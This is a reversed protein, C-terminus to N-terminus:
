GRRPYLTLVADDDYRGVDHLDFRPAQELNTAWPGVLLPRGQPGLLVPAVHLVLKDVLGERLFAGLVTAGGEILASRVGRSWLLELLPPPEDSCVLTDAADDFVRRAAGALRGRRDLVVRLPQTGGYGDLRVTLQPDDALVTGSGVVVADVQARLRHVAQRAHEGTLWQSSGDAAAIRGDLSVASKAVVFPRGTSLGHLFVENQRAADSACLGSTVAIGADRLRDAGGAAVPNPDDLAIVVRAVGAAILARTCPQTRGTHNCPELTVFATAGRAAEGAQQLANVEAHPEGARQHWGEGVVTGDRWLVCGVLPNPSVTWRGREALDLARRM